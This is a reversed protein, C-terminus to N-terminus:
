IKLINSSTSDSDVEKWSSMILTKSLSGVGPSYLRTRCRMSWFRNSCIESSSSASTRRAHGCISVAIREPTGRIESLVTTASASLAILKCSSSREPQGSTVSAASNSTVFLDRGKCDIRNFPATASVSEDMDAIAFVQERSTSSSKPSRGDRVGRASRSTQDKELHTSIRNGDLVTASVIYFAACMLVPLNNM